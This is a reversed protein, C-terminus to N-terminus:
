CNIINFFGCITAVAIETRLVTNCISAVKVKNEKAYDIEENSFGGEPGIFIGLRDPAKKLNFKDAKLDFLFVERDEKKAKLIAIKFDMIKSIDPILSRESQKCEEIVVKRYKDNDLIERRINSFSSRVPIFRKVGLETGIRLIEKIKNETLVPFYLSIYFDLETNKIKELVDLELFNKNIKKIEAKYRCGKGDFIKIIDGVRFRRVRSIHRIEEKQKVLIRNNKIRFPVYFQSM